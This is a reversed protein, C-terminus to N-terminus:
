DEVRMKSPMPRLCVVMAVNDKVRNGEHALVLLCITRKEEQKCALCDLETRNLTRGLKAPPAEISRSAIARLSLHKWGEYGTSM